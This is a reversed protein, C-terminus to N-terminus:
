YIVFREFAWIIVLTNWRGPCVPLFCAQVESKPGLISCDSGGFQPSPSTCSRSRVRKGQGCSKDCESWLSWPGYNGNVALFSIFKSKSFPFVPVKTVLSAVFALSYNSDLYLARQFLIAIKNSIQHVVARCLSDFPIFVNWRSIKPAKKWSKYFLGYVDVNCNSYSPYLNRKIDKSCRWNLSSLGPTFM